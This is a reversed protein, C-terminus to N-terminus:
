QVSGLFFKNRFPSLVTEAQDRYRHLTCSKAPLVCAQRRAHRLAAPADFLVDQGASQCSKTVTKGHWLRDWLVSAPAITAPAPSAVSSIRRCRRQLAARM